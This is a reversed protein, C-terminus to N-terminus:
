DLKSLIATVDVALKQGLKLLQRCQHYEEPNNLATVCLPLIKSHLCSFYLEQSQHLSIGINLQYSVDILRELAQIETAFSGNADHLLQWLLRMILQELIQKGEPINLRCHLNKAETAIAELEVIHNLSLAPDTVDQELSRLTMMCRSGLAIEAAVQLEQPVELEDRHFAMLVGYNDRYTQTYLQDLRTLTEQSLLRMIRHREEAFLNQLSFTEESFLQSMVLITQAASAQQLSTFLKEKLQTYDRRGTFLQTCCHFDWGGLHLVAFVLNESEWTIESV